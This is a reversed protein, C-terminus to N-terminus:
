RIFMSFLLGILLVLLAGVAAAVIEQNRLLLSRLGPEPAQPVNVPKGSRPRPTLSTHATSVQAPLVLKPEPAADFPKPSPPPSEKAPEARLIPNSELLRQPDSPTSLRKPQCRQYNTSLYSPELPHKTYRNCM